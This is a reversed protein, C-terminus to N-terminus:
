IIAKTYADDSATRRIRAMSESIAFRRMMVGYFVAKLVDDRKAVIRGEKRHYTRMEDFFETCSAFVKFRGDAMRKQVEVLIPEVPQGGGKKNDYFPV